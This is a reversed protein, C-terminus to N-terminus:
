DALQDRDDMVLFAISRLNEDDMILEIHHNPRFSSVKIVRVVEALEKRIDIIETICNEAGYFFERNFITEPKDLPIAVPYIQAEMLDQFFHTGYSPEPAPGVEKGSLEVLAAANCIDAYSVFIGLDFNATGWRGPGMCIFKKEELASNLLGIVRAIEHRNTPNTMAFYKEPHVFIVYSIDQLYGEPVMFHSTFLIDQRPLMEPFKVKYSSKLGAHPRCQLLTIKTKPHHTNVDFPQVTFEVDVNTNFNRELIKLLLSLSSSFNTRRLMEDFTIAIAPIQDQRLMRKPTVFGGNQEIQILSRLGPYRPHIVDKVPLTKLKNEELDILDIYQQSYYRVANPDDDPQLTPHSLAVIRPYDSGVREVARTGLGWVLRAFGDERRINPAWRYINRSFAVGAGFPFYYKEWKEGQVVQILVAMREDYDQLGRYRRYLLAEPKFISAYTSSIAKILDNLNEEPTGQNACFYSDYKGAFSTGLNDELQSSSRVILPKSGISDLMNELEVVVEPPFKGSLFEEKILPYEARIESEVKYKQDNWHVLGNMALFVYILDSGMYYSEPVEVIETQDTDLVEDLIRKALILGAAKGGIRGIGIRRNHVNEIDKISLWQKAINIYGLQDSLIRRILTVKIETLHHELHRKDEEPLSEITLGHEILKAEPIFEPDFIEPLVFGALRDDPQFEHRSVVFPDKQQWVMKAQVPLKGILLGFGRGERVDRDDIMLMDVITCTPTAQDCGLKQLSLSLTTEMAMFLTRLAASKRAVWAIFHIGFQNVQKSEDYAETESPVPKLHYIARLTNDMKALTISVQEVICDALKKCYDCKGLSIGQRVRWVDGAFFKEACSIISQEVIEDTFDQNILM